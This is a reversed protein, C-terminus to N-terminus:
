EERVVERRHGVAMVEVTRAADDVTYVIRYTGVRTRYAQRGRLKKSGPGRPARGLALIAEAVREFLPRPLADMEREASRKIRVEYRQPASV